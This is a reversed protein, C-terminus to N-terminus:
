GGGGAKFVIDRLPTPVKRHKLEEVSQELKALRAEVQEFLKYLSDFMGNWQLKESM